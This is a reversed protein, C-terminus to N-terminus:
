KKYANKSQKPGFPDYFRRRFTHNLVPKFPCKSPSIRVFNDRPSLRNRDTNAHILYELASTPPLPKRVHLEYLEHLEDIPRCMYLVVSSLSTMSQLLPLLDIAHKVKCLSVDLPESVGVQLGNAQLVSRLAGNPCFTHVQKFLLQRVLQEEPYEAVQRDLVQTIGHNGTLYMDGTYM